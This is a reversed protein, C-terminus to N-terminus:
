TKKVAEATQYAKEKGLIDKKKRESQKEFLPRM